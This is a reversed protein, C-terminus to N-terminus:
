TRVAEAAGLLLACNTGGFASSLSLTCRADCPRPADAVVDLDCRPDLAGSTVTPPVVRAAMAALAVVAEVAGAAGLTHGITGKVTHVPRGGARPGFVRTLAAAEMADNFPTATGHANVVGVADPSLGACRLARAIALAVGRGQPDPATLHHADASRGYGLIV